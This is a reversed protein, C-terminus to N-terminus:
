ALGIREPWTSFPALCLAANTYRPDDSVERGIWKPRAFPQDETELEIEAIVLGQNLGLFEDVEWLFGQFPIIHRNKEILPQRCLTDLMARADESPIPYEYEPRVVGTTPGKITLYGQNGALRVRVTRGQEACLYGQRYLVGEALGRWADGTILFKREIEEGM